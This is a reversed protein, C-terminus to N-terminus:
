PTVAASGARPAVDAVRYAEPQDLTEHEMLAHALADLRAREAELLDIVDEEADEVIRRAEDDVTQQTLPSVASGGQLLVGDERGEGVALPGIADSM